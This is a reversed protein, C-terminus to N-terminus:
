SNVETAMKSTTSLPTKATITTAAPVKTTVAKTMSRSWLCLIILSFSISSNRSFTVLSDFSCLPPQAGLADLTGEQSAQDKRSVWGLSRVRM